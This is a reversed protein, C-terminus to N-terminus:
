ADNNISRSQIEDLTSMGTHTPERSEVDRVFDATWISGEDDWFKRWAPFELLGRMYDLQTQAMEADQLGMSRQLFADQIRGVVSRALLQFRAWELEDFEQMIPQSSKVILATLEPHTALREDFEAFGWSSARTSAAVVAKTNTRTEKALYLLTAVVAMAGVIEGIAGIADWNMILGTVGLM